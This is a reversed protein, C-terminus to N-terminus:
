PKNAPEANGTAPDDHESPFVPLPGYVKGGVVHLPYPAFLGQFSLCHAGAYGPLTLWTWEDSWRKKSPSLGLVHAIKPDLPAVAVVPARPLEVQTEVPHDSRTASMLDVTTMDPATRMITEASSSTKSLVGVVRGSADLAPSGSAGTTPGGHVIRGGLMTSPRTDAVLIGTIGRYTQGQGPFFSTMRMVGADFNPDSAPSTAVGTAKGLPTGDSSYVVVQGDRHAGAVHGATLILNPAGNRGTGAIVTGTAADESKQGDHGVAIQLIFVVADTNTAPLGSAAFCNDSARAPTPSTVAAAGILMAGM